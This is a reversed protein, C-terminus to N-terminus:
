SFVGLRIRASWVTDNAGLREVRFSATPQNEPLSIETREYLCSEKGNDLGDSM